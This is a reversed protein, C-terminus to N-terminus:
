LGSRSHYVSYAPHQPGNWGESPTRGQLLYGFSHIKPRRLRRSTCEIYSCVALAILQDWCAALGIMKQFHMVIIYLYSYPSFKDHAYLRLNLPQQQPLRQPASATRASFAYSRAASVRFMVDETREMRTISTRRLGRAAAWPRNQCCLNSPRCTWSCM